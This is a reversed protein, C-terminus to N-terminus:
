VTEFTAISEVAFLYLRYIVSGLPGITCHRAPAVCVYVATRAYEVDSSEFNAFWYMKYPFLPSVQLGPTAADPRWTMAVILMAEVPVVASV